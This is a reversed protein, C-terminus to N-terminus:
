LTSPSFKVCFSYTWVSMLATHYANNANNAGVQSRPDFFSKSAGLAIEKARNKSFDAPGFMSLLIINELVIKHMGNSCSQAGNAYWTEFCRSSSFWSFDQLTQRLMFTNNCAVLDAGFGGNMFAITLNIAGQKCFFLILFVM